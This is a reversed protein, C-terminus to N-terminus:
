VFYFNRSSDDEPESTSIMCAQKVFEVKTRGGGMCIRVAASSRGVRYSVSSDWMNPVWDGGSVMGAM